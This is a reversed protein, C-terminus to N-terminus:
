LRSYLKNMDIPGRVNALAVQAVVLTVLGVVKYTVNPHVMIVIGLGIYTLQLTKTGIVGRGFRKALGYTISVAGSMTAVIVLLPEVGFEPRLLIPNYVIAYPIVFLPLSIKIAMIATERFNSGAVGTAVVVAVAIPPTLASLIVAYFIFFHVALDPLAFNRILGPAVLIAVLLYAPATPMGMGLIISLAMALILAVLLVGGSLEMLALSLMSPMGTAILVEIMAGIGAVVIAIPSVALAGEYLGDITQAFLSKFTSVSLERLIPMGIGALLVAGVSLLASYIITFQAIGLFYIMVLIPVVFRVTEFALESRSSITSELKSEIDVEDVDDRDSTMASDERNDALENVTFIHVSMVVAIYFVAAPVLGAVMIDVYPRGLLSAILFAAVGMIPPIIQGGSSAVSEIAASTSSKLGSKKMLPITISGTIGVNAIASGNISGIIMSSLVAAQSIGSETYERLKNTMSIILNFAGYNQMLASFLMFLAIWTGVIQTLNGYIGSIELVSLLLIQEHSLGTHFLWSPFYPGFYGYVFAGILVAFFGLGYKRYVLYLVSSLVIAAMVYDLQTSYGRRVVQLKHFNAMVHATVIFTGVIIGGLLLVDWDRGDKLSSEVEDLAYIIISSGLFLVGFEARSIAFTYAYLFIGVWFLVAFVVATRHLIPIGINKFRMRMEAFSSDRPTM